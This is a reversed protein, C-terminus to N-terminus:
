NFWQRVVNNKEEMEDSGGHTGKYDYVYDVISFYSTNSLFFYFLSMLNQQFRQVESLTMGFLDVLAQDYISAEMSTSEGFSDSKQTLFYTKSTSSHMRQLKIIKALEIMVREFLSRVEDDISSLMMHPLPKNKQCKKYADVLLVLYASNFTIIANNHDKQLITLGTQILELKDDQNPNTKETLDPSDDQNAVDDIISYAEIQKLLKKM